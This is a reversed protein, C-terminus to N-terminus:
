FLNYWGKCKCIPCGRDNTRLGHVCNKNCDMLPRCEKCKCVECGAKNLRFGHSCNKHCDRLAPCDASGVHLASCECLKNGHSDQLYGNPCELVCEDSVSWSFWEKKHLVFAVLWSDNKRPFSLRLLNHINDHIGSDLLKSKWTHGVPWNWSCLILSMLIYLCNIKKQPEVTRSPGQGGWM